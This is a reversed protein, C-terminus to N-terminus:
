RLDGGQIGQARLEFGFANGDLITRPTVAKQDNSIGVAILEEEVVRALSNRLFTLDQLIQHVLGPDFRRGGRQSRPARGASSSAWPLCFCSTFGHYTMVRPNEMKTPNTRTITQM